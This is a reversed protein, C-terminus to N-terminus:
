VHAPEANVNVTQVAAIGAAEVDVRPLRQELWRPLWWNADGMLAMTAPVLVMRVVSADILVAVTLGVAFMKIEVDPTLLFAAFVSIMILAASTIVRATSALGDVVSHHSEGTLVYEERVRSLLFVEYDMSLGFLIAFMIMPLFPSVPVTSDLGILESGWGWQFVAVVVGYAGGISLLNMVAAKLPVVVSRFVIMLLLFSLAVVVAIFYPLRSGLRESIDIYAATQGTVFHDGDGAVVAPLVDDRLRRVLAETAADQPSTAPIAMLVTTDREPNVMPGNVAVVGDTGAIAERVRAVTVPDVGDLVITLPGNFGPGFGEALLDYARRYTTDTPATGDDAMGTRMAVVPSALAVLGLFAGIAYRWPHRGVHDAWRAAVTNRPEVPRRGRRRRGVHLRDIKTGALGLLAPLLTVAAVMAVVVTVASAVGMLGISPIGAIWLAILAVVVTGGAFLVATGSTANALAAAEVPPVDDHLYSRHRTVVFLAYDIGVGLGIMTALMPAISPLDTYGAMVGVGALGLMIGAMATGIPIGAAVVSGFAVVLVILAVVLGVHENGEVEQAGQAITRSLEVTLGARRAIDAAAEAAASQEPGPPTIDYGVSAYAIARSASVGGSHPDFPDTVGVVHPGAAIAALTDAIADRATPDTIDGDPDAFVVRGSAGAQSPFRDALLDLGRQAETGPITFNDNTEGGVSANLALVVVAIVLWAGIMRWPHRAASRGLRYLLTSM